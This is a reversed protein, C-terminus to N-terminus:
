SGLLPDPGQPESVASKPPPTAAAAPPPAEGEDGLEELRQALTKTQEPAPLPVTAPQAPAPPSSPTAPASEDASLPAPAPASPTAASEAVEQREPVSSNDLSPATSPAMGGAPVPVSFSFTAGEGEGPSDAWMRGGHLEVIAKAIFLAIGAGDPAKLKATRGRFFKTFLKPREDPRVGIGQDEVHIRVEQGEGGERAVVEGKLTVTKGEESYQLANTLMLRLVRGLAERDGQVQPMVDPMECAFLMHTREAEKRYEQCVSELLARVDMMAPRYEFDGSQLALLDFINELQGVLFSSRQRLVEAMPGLDEFEPHDQSFESLAEAQWRLAALPTRFQHMVVTIFDQQAGAMAEAQSRKEELNRITELLQKTEAALAMNKGRLEQMQSQVTEKLEERSAYAIREEELVGSPLAQLVAAIGPLAGFDQSLMRGIEEMAIRARSEGLETVFERFSRDIVRQFSSTVTEERADEPLQGLAQYAAQWGSDSVAQMATLFTGQAAEVLVHQVRGADWNARKWLEELLVRFLFFLQAPLPLFLVTFADPLVHELKFKRALDIRLAQANPYPSTALKVARQEADLYLRRLLNTRTAVDMETVHAADPLEEFEPLMKAVSEVVALADKPALPKAKKGFGFKM